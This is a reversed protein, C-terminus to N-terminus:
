QVSGDSWLLVPEGNVRNIDLHAAPRNGNSDTCSPFWCQIVGSEIAVRLSFTGCHPCTPPLGDPGARIREWRPKDDVAPLQRIVDAWHILSRAARKARDRSVVSSMATIAEMAGVTNSDSGGRPWRHRGTIEIRFEREIERVGAHADTIAYAVAANWPPRSTPKGSSRTTPTIDPEAILTEAIALWAGLDECAESLESM